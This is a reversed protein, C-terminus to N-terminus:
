WCPGCPKESDSSCEQIQSETVETCNYKIGEMLVTQLDRLSANNCNAVPNKQTVLVVSLNRVRTSTLRKVEISGFISTKNFPAAISGNLMVTVTGCAHDAFAASARRWFSRVPNNECDNWNPCGSTFTDNSGEKGCWTLGDLVSGLLTEELTLFCDKEKSFDRVVDKTKFDHVMDKTKSWLMTRSCTHNFPAVATVLDDYADMSVNCPDRGVYTQRFADWITRCDYGKFKECRAIFEQEFTFTEPRLTLSLVVAVVVVTIVVLVIGSIICYKWKKDM